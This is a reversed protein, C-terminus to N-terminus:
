TRELKAFEAWRGAYDGAAAHLRAGREVPPVDPSTLIEGAWAYIPDRDFGSGFAYMLRTVVVQDSRGTLGYKSALRQGDTLLDRLGAEGIVAAKRPWAKRLRDALEAPTLRAYDELPEESARVADKILAINNEGVVENWYAAGADYIREARDGENTIRSDKLIGHAWRYQRDEDFYSGCLLMISTYMVVNCEATINHVAAREVGLRIMKRLPKDGAMIAPGPLHEQFQHATSEIYQELAYERLADSQEPRINLM